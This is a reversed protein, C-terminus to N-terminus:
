AANLSALRHFWGMESVKQGDKGNGPLARAGAHLEVRGRMSCGKGPGRSHGGPVLRLLGLGPFSIRCRMGRGWECQINPTRHKLAKEREVRLWSGDVQKMM